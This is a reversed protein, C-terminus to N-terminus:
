MYFNHLLTKQIDINLSVYIKSNQCTEEKKNLLYRSQFVFYQESIKLHSIKTRYYSIENQSENKFM